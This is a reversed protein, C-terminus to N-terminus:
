STVRPWRKSVARRTVGLGDAIERDSYGARRLAPVAVDLLSEYEARIARVHELATPDDEGDAFRRALSRIMRVVAGTIDWSERWGVHNRLPPRSSPNGSSRGSQRSGVRTDPM